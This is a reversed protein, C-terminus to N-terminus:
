KEGYRALQEPTLADALQERVSRRVKELESNVAFLDPNEAKEHRDIIFDQRNKQDALITAVRASQATDLGLRDKLEAADPIAKQAMRLSRFYHANYRQSFKEQRARLKKKQEDTLKENIRQFSEEYIRRLEPEYSVRLDTARAEMKTVLKEVEAAQAADLRLDDVLRKVIKKVREEPTRTRTSHSGELEHGLYIRTGLAGAFIGVLLILAVTIVIKVKNM